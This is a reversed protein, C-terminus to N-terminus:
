QLVEQQKAEIPAMSESDVQVVSDGNEAAKAKIRAHIQEICDMTMRCSLRNICYAMLETKKIHGVERKLGHIVANLVQAFWDAEIFQPAAIKNVEALLENGLDQFQQPTIPLYTDNKKFMVKSMHEGKSQICKRLM